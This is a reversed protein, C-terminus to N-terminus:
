LMDRSDRRNHRHTASEVFYAVSERVRYANLACLGIEGGCISGSRESLHFYNLAYM